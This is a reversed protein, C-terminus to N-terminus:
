IEGEEINGNSREIFFTIGEDQAVNEQIGSDQSSSLAVIATNLDVTSEIERIAVDHGDRDLHDFVVFQVNIQEKPFHV